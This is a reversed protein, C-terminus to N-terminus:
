YFNSVYNLFGLFRQLQNKNIIVDPFKEVFELAHKQLSINGNCITHGLFKITTQFVEIKKKSLVLGNKKVLNKFINVHKFHEQINKSFILVDDIYVVLWYFYPKFIIDMVKQFKSPTNNLGFPMVNWEYHGAPISFATKFKDKEAIAVKWFGAKLDFMSFIKAGAIRRILDGKHPLPYTDDALVSNLPKYNIVLSPIGKIQEARKNV